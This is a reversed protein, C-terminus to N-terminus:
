SPSPAREAASGLPALMGLPMALQLRGRNRGLGQLPARRLAVLKLPEQLLPRRALWPEMTETGMEQRRPVQPGLLLNVLQEM